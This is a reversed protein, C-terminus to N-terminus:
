PSFFRFYKSQDSVLEYFTSLRHEDGPGIPRLHATRGDRLLVDAEWHEPYIPVTATVRLLKGVGRSRSIVRLRWGPTGGPSLAPATPFFAWMARRLVGAGGSSKSSCMTSM